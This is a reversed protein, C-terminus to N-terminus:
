YEGCIIDINDALIFKKGIVNENEDTANVIKIIDSDKIETNQEVQTIRDAQSQLEYEVSDIAESLLTDANKLSTAGSLHVDNEDASYKGDNFGAADNFNTLASATVFENEIIVQILTSINSEITSLAVDMSMGSVISEFITDGIASYTIASYESSTKIDSANVVVSLSMNIKDWNAVVDNVTLKSNTFFDEYDCITAFANDDGNAKAAFGFLTKVDVVTGNDDKVAYRSIVLEGDSSSELQSKLAKKADDKNDFYVKNRYLQLNNNSM